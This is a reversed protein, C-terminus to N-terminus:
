KIEYKISGAAGLPIVVKINNIIKKPPTWISDILINDSYM